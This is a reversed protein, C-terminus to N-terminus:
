NYLWMFNGVRISKLCGRGGEQTVHGLVLLGEIIRFSIFLHVEFPFCAGEVSM